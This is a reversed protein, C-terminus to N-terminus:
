ARARVLQAVLGWGSDAAAYFGCAQHPSTRFFSFRLRRHGAQDASTESAEGLNNWSIRYFGKIFM